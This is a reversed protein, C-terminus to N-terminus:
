GIASYILIFQIFRIRACNASSPLDECLVFLGGATATAAAGASTARVSASAGRMARIARIRRLLGTTATRATTTSTRTTATAPLRCFYYGYEEPKTAGVNCEAWYPGNERNREM